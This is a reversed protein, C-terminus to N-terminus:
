QAEDVFLHAFPKDVGALLEHARLLIAADDLDLLPRDDETPQGDIGTQGRVDDDDEDGLAGEVRRVHEPLDADVTREGPKQALGMEAWAQRPADEPRTRRATKKKAKREPPRERPDRAVIAAVRDVMARHAEVIDREPVPMEPADRLLALLRPRDTLLDAWLEVVARSGRKGKSSIVAAAMRELEHLLAPHSKVRTVALPAEDLLEAKLWPIAARLEREA